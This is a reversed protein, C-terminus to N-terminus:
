VAANAVCRAGLVAVPSSKSFHLRYKSNYIKPLLDYAFFISGYEARSSQTCQASQKVCQFGRACGCLIDVEHKEFKANLGVPFVRFALATALPCDHTGTRVTSLKCGVLKPM